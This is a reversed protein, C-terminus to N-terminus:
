NVITYFSKVYFLEKENEVKRHIEILYKEERMKRGYLNEYSLYFELNYVNKSRLINMIRAEFGLQFKKSEEVGIKVLNYSRNNQDARIITINLAPGSGTNRVYFELRSGNSLKEKFDGREVELTEVTTLLKFQDLDIIPTIARHMVEYQEEQIKSLIAQQKVSEKMEEIQLELAKEQQELAKTNQDLQKGQQVYGLILWFFAIPAFIGALFDGLENLSTPLTYGNSRSFLYIGLLWIFSVLVGFILSKKNM